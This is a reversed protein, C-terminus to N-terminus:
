RHHHPHHRWPKTVLFEFVRWPVLRKAAWRRDKSTGKRLITVFAGLKQALNGEWWDTLLRLVLARDAIATRLAGARPGIDGAALCADLDGLHGQYHLLRRTRFERTRAERDALSLDWGSWQRMHLSHLNNSHRRYKVLQQPLYVVGGALSARFYLAHDENPLRPDLAPFKRGVVDLDYSLAAGTYRFLYADEVQDLFRPHRWDMVCGEPAKMAPEDVTIQHGNEDIDIWCSHIAGPYAHAVWADYTDQVRPPLSVDDGGNMVILRGQAMEFVKNIHACVGLNRDNRTIRVEHPTDRGKLTAQIVEFTADTSCDDSIIIELPSYTQALAGEIAEAIFDEQNYSFIALTVLPREQM